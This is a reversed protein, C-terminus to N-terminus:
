GNMQGFLQSNRSALEDLRKRFDADSGFGDFALRAQPAPAAAQLELRPAKIKPKAEIGRSKAIARWEADTLQSIGLHEVLAMVYVRCDFFHNDRESSRLKWVRSIKGRIKEDTLWESTIQRFYNEDLGTPFHCYGEPEEDAGSGWKTSMPM